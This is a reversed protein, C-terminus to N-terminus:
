AAETSSPAPMFFDNATVAGGTEAMIKRLTDPSPTVEGRAIRTVTSISVGIRAAFATATVDQEKLWQAIQM